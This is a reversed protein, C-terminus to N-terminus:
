FQLIRTIFSNLNDDNWDFNNVVYSINMTLDDILQKKKYQKEKTSGNRSWMILQSEYNSFQMLFNNISVRNKSNLKEFLDNCDRNIFISFDRTKKSFAPIKKIIRRIKAIYKDKKDEVINSSFEVKIKEIAPKIITQFDCKFLEKQINYENLLDFLKKEAKAPLNVLFLEVCEPNIFYTEYRQLLKKKVDEFPLNIATYGLKYIDDIKYQPNTICYIYGPM